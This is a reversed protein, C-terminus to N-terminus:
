GRRRVTSGRLALDLGAEREAQVLRLYETQDDQLRRQPRDIRRQGTLEDEQRQDVLM